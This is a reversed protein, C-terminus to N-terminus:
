YCNKPAIFPTALANRWLSIRNKITGISMNKVYGEVDLGFSWEHNRILSAMYTDIMPHLVEACPYQMSEWILYLATDHEKTYLKPRGAKQRRGSRELQIRRMARTISNEHLDLTKELQERLVRREQSYPKTALWGKLHTRLVERKTKMPMIRLRISNNDIVPSQM